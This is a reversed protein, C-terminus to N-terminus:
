KRPEHEKKKKKIKFAAGDLVRREPAKVFSVLERVPFSRIFLLLPM